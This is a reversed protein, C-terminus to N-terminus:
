RRCNIYILNFFSGHMLYLIAAWCRRSLHMQLGQLLSFTSTMVMVCVVLLAAASDSLDCMM